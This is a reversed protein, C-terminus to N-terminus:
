RAYVRIKDVNMESKVFLNGILGVIQQENMPVNMNGPSTSSKSITTKGNAVCYDQSIYNTGRSVSIPSNTDAEFAVVDRSGDLYFQIMDNTDGGVVDGYIYFQRSTGYPLAYNTFFVVYKGDLVYSTSVATGDGLTLKLNSVIGALNKTTRLRVAMMNIARNTNTSQLTFRGMQKNTDGIYYKNTCTSSLTNTQSTYTISPAVYQTTNIENSKLPFTGGVTGASSVDAPSDVSVVFRENISANTDVVVYVSKTTGAPITMGGPFNLNAKYDTGFTRINTLPMYMGDTVYVGDIHIRDVLGALKVNLSNINADTNGATLDLKLARINTATGPVYQVGPTDSAVAVTLNGNAVPNTPTTDVTGTSATGTGLLAGLIATLDDGGSTTSCANRTRYLMLAAEYRNVGRGQAYTDTESTIGRSAAAAFYNDWRPEVTEDKNGELARIITTFLQARTLKSKPMFMGNSGKMLGLSCAQNISSQLSADASSMDAFNGDCAPSTVACTLVNTRFQSVFKAAQERTVSEAPRYSNVDNFMTLGNDYMWALADVFEPDSAYMSQATTVLPGFSGAVVVFASLSAILKKLM